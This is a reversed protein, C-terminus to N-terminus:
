LNSEGKNITNLMQIYWQSDIDDSTIDKINELDDIINWYSNSIQINQVIYNKSM